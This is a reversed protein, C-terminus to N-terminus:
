SADPDSAGWRQYLTHPIRLSDLVKGVLHDVLGDIDAPRHYFGPAAPLVTAGARTVRAMNEIHILNLPTERVALILPLREKLCVDAARVLLSDSTGSAIRGLTGMSCPVVAMGHPGSSGSCFPAFIDAPSWLTLRDGGEFTSPWSACDSDLEHLAVATGAESVVLHCHHGMQLLAEVLRKGYIAGSAGTLGVVVNM